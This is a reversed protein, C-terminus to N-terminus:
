IKSSDCDKNNELIITGRKTDVKVLHCGGLCPLFDKGSGHIYKGGTTGGRALAVEM